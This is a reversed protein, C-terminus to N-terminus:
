SNNRRGNQQAQQDNLRANTAYDVLKMETMWDGEHTDGVHRLERIVFNGTVFKTELRIPDSPVVSPILLSRVRWGDYSQTQTSVRARRNTRQDTVEAAERPGEREREPSDVMGTESTLLYALRDTSGGAQTIQLAGGQISWSLGDPRLIRDLANRAPGHFSIGGEWFRSPSNRVMDLGLGMDRAIDNLMQHSSVVRTYSRSIMTDRFSKLGEGLELQTIIDPGEIKSWAFKVDGEFIKILGDQEAYGAYLVARQDPEELAERTSKKLNWIRIESNNPTRSTTKSISFSMRLDEVEIGMQSAKGVILRAVRIFQM